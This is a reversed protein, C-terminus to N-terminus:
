SARAAAPSSKRHPGPQPKISSDVTPTPDAASIKTTAGMQGGPGREADAILQHYIADSIRRKLCRRAEKPTKGDAIKRLYYRRGECDFRLQVIAAIHLAHNLRRNGHLNV